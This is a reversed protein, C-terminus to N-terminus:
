RNYNSQRSYTALAARTAQVALAFENGLSRYVRRSSPPTQADVSSGYNRQRKPRKPPPPPNKRDLMRTSPPPTVQVSTRQTTREMDIRQADQCCSVDYDLVACVTVIDANCCSAAKLSESVEEADVVVEDVVEEEVVTGTAQATSEVASM